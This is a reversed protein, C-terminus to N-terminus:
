RGQSKEDQDVVSRNFVVIASFRGEEVKCFNLDAGYSRLVDVVVALGLGSGPKAPDLRGGIALATEIQDLAIGPGDDWVELREENVFLGVSSRSWKYANDILNSLVEALDGEEIPLRTTSPVDIYFRLARHGHLRQMAAVIQEVLPRALTLTGAGRTGAIAARNLHHDIQRKMVDCRALLFDGAAAEGRLRLQEAEDAVLALPTRLEHALNGAERRARAVLDAQGDLLANLRSVIPEFEAPGTMPLRAIEGHRLRGVEIGLQKVPILGFRVVLVAGVMLLVGVVGVSMALDLHFHAIQTELLSRASAITTVTAQGSTTRTVVSRQLVPEAGVQAQHWQGDPDPTLRHAGLSPSRSLREGRGEVQWYLGSGPVNFLPDSLPQAVHVGGAPNVQTMAVLEDLHHDLESQFRDTTHLRYLQGIVLGALLMAVAVGVVSGVILRWRLSGPSFLKM